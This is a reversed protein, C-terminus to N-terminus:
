KNIKKKREKITLYMAFILLVSSSIRLWFGLSNVDTTLINTLILIFSVIILILPLDKKKM